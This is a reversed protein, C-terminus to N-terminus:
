LFCLLENARVKLLCVCNLNIMDYVAAHLSLSKRTCAANNVQPLDSNYFWVQNQSKVTLFYIDYETHM